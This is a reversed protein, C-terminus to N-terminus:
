KCYSSSFIFYFFYLPGLIISLILGIINELVTSNKFLCVISTIFAIFGIVGWIISIVFITGFFGGATKAIHTIDKDKQQDGQDKQQDQQDGIQDQQYTLFM